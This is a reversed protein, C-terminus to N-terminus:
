GGYERVVVLGAGGAGGCNSSVVHTGGGGSGHVGNRKAGWYSGGRGSGGWYSAGGSGGAEENGPGDINGTAGDNGRLNIDGGSGQGGTGGVGWTPVSSGGTASLFTGFTSAGGSSGGGSTNGCSGTGGTGITVPASTISSVDMVEIATGGAGGGGQADDSNHSGGGGGAGTVIVEIRDVGTPRTWTGSATFTQISVLGGIVAKCQWSQTSAEYRITDGDMCQLADLPNTIAYAAAHLMQRPGIAVGAEETQVWLTGNDRLAPMLPTSEGLTVSFYGDQPTVTHTEFWVEADSVSDTHLSLRITQESNLASGSVDLIRGQFALTQPTASATSSTLLVALALVGARLLQQTTM